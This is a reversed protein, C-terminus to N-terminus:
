PLLDVGSLMRAANGGLIGDLEEATFGLSSLHAIEVEPNTWPGDTGFMVKEVGHKRALEVFDDDPLNRPCYATDFWADCGAIQEAVQDWLKYSGMHALVLRMEPFRRMLTAFSGPTSHAGPHIEDRGAHFFVILGHEIAAEYLADMRPDNPEFSQHEPHLKVGRVGHAALRAIEEAAKEFDPHMAGFMILRPNTVAIVWDNISEVQRPKTAVPQVVSFDIGSRDMEALLGDLTGDYQAHWNHGAQELVAIAAAAVKDPWAHAHVDIISM